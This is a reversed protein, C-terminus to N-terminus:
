GTEDFRRMRIAGCTGDPNLRVPDGIEVPGAARAVIINRGREMAIVVEDPGRYQLAHGVITRGDRGFDTGTVPEAEPGELLEIRARALGTVAAATVFASRLFNRRNMKLNEAQRM